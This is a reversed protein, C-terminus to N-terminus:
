RKGPRGPPLTSQSRIRGNRASRRYQDTRPDAQLCRPDIKKDAAHHAPLVRRVSVHARMDGSSRECIVKPSSYIQRNRREERPSKRRIADARWRHRRAPARRCSEVGPQHEAESPPRFSGSERVITLKTVWKWRRAGSAPVQRAAPALIRILLTGKAVLKPRGDTQGQM